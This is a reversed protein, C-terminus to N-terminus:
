YSSIATPTGKPGEPALSAMGISEAAQSVPLQWSGPGRASRCSGPGQGGPQGAASGSGPGKASRCSVRVRGWPQRAAALGKAGQSVAHFLYKVFYKVFYMVFYMVFM